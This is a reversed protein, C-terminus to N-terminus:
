APQRIHRLFSQSLESTKAVDGLNGGYGQYMSFGLLLDVLSQPLCNPGTENEALTVGIREEMVADLFSGVREDGLIIPSGCM